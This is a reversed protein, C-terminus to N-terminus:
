PAAREEGPPLAPRAAELLARGAAVVEDVGIAAMCEPGATGRPCAAFVGCPSCFLGASLVAHRGPEGWPGFRRMDSPGFLHVSPAGQSVAIHLPGSDVGLVLAARGLLAALQGVSTQGALTLPPQRMLGAVEAVLHADGPGGTLLLRADPAALQDAVVAWREPLWHKTPGGTGPHIVILREGPALKEALWAAAWAREDRTPTFEM